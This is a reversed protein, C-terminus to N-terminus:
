KILNGDVIDLDVPDQPGSSELYELYLDITKADVKKGDLRAPVYSTYTVADTTIILAVLAHLSFHIINPFM